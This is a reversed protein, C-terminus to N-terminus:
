SSSISTETNNITSPTSRENKEEIILKFGEGKHEISQESKEVYGRNKLKTKALFMLLQPNGDKALRNIHEEISDWHYEDVEEMLQKFKPEKLWKYYTVRNIGIEKASKGIHGKNNIYAEIFLQKKTAKHQM